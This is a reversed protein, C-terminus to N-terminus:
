YRHWCPLAVFVMTLLVGMATMTLGTDGPAYILVPIGCGVLFAMCVSSALGTFISLWINVRRLPQSVLLEIFEAANYVYITSFVISVLPVIILVLNLLSLIGKSPNDELNFVSLSIVALFITYAIIIRNRLLDLLVYKIIKKM